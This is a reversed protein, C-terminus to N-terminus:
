GHHNEYSNVEVGRLAQVGACAKRINLLQFIYDNERAQRVDNPMSEVLEKSTM